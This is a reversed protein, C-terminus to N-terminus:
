SKTRTSKLVAVKAADAVDLRMIREARVWVPSGDVLVMAARLRRVDPMEATSDISIVLMVKDPMVTGCSNRTSMDRTPWCVTWGIAVALDGPNM